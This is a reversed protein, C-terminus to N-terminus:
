FNLNLIIKLIKKIILKKFENKAKKKKLFWKKNEIIKLNKKLLKKLKEFM